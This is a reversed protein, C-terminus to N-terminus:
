AIHLYSNQSILNLTFVVTQSFLRKKFGLKLHFGIDTYILHLGFYPSFWTWRLCSIEVSWLDVGSFGRGKDRRDYQFLVNNVLTNFTFQSIPCLMHSMHFTVYSVHYKLYLIKSRITWIKCIFFLPPAVVHNAKIVYM